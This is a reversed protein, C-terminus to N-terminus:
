SARVSGIPADDPAREVSILRDPECGEKWGGGIEWAAHVASPAEVVESRDGPESDYRYTVLWRSM